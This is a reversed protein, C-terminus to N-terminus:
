PKSGLAPRYVRIATIPADPGGRLELRHKGNPLGQALTVAAEVAKDKVAPARFEDQYQPLVKWQIKFNEPLPTKFVKLAYEFNWDAPDIVVRGSNSMFRKGAEGAGDPGTKTGAVTFRFKKM